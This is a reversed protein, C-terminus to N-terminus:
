LTFIDDGYNTEYTFNGYDFYGRFAYLFEWLRVYPVDEYENFYHVGLKDGDIDYDDEALNVIQLEKTYGDTETDDVWGCGFRFCSSLLMSAFPILLLRKKM